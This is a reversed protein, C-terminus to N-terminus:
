GWSLIKNNPTKMLEKIESDNVMCYNTGTYKQYDESYLKIFTNFEEATLEVEINSGYDFYSNDEIKNISLLYKVSSMFDMEFAFAGFYGYLKTGYYDIKQINDDICLRYGM